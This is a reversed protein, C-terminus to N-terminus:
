SIHCYWVRFYGKPSMSPFVIASQTCPLSYPPTNVLMFFQSYRSVSIQWFDLASSSLPVCFNGSSSSRAGTDLSLYGGGQVGALLSWCPAGQSQQKALGPTPGWCLCLYDWIQMGDPSWESSAIAQHVSFCIEVWVHTTPSVREWIVDGSIRGGARVVPDKELCSLCFCAHDWRTIDPFPFIETTIYKGTAYDARSSRKEQSEEWLWSNFIM